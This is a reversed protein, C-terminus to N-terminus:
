AEQPPKRKEMVFRSLILRAEGESYDHIRVEHEVLM